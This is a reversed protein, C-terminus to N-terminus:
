CSSLAWTLFLFSYKKLTVHYVTCYMYSVDKTSGVELEAESIQYDRIKKFMGPLLVELTSEAAIQRAIKKSQGTGSGYKIGDIEVEAVFPSDASECESALYVPKSKLARQCYEHLIAVPTKGGANLLYDKGPNKGSEAGKVSFPLCELSPPLELSDVPQPQAIVANREQEPTLIQFEWLTSLYTDLEGADLLELTSPTSKSSDTTEQQQKGVEKASTVQKSCNNSSETIESSQTVDGQDNVDWQETVGSSETVIDAEITDNVARADNEVSVVNKETVEVTDTINMIVDLGSAESGECNCSNEETTIENPMGNQVDQTNLANLISGGQNMPPFNSM